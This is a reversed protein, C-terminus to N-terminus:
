FVFDLVASVVHVPRDIVHGPQVNILMGSSGHRPRVRDYQLKLAMSPQMDWRVGASVTDQQPMTVLLRNLADNLLAGQVAYAPPLGDLALGANSTADSTGIRAYSLYPTFDGSRLGASTYLATASGLYSRTRSRGAEGMVFWAGPDYNVSVTLAQVRKGDAEYRDAIAVGQPGFQRFADFVSRAHDFTLKAQALTARATLAGYEATNTVGAIGHLKLNVQDFLHQSYAGYFAQTVNKVPGAHWRYSLDVGDSHSIPVSGYVEVPTRAWPYAYAAKRYDAALFLPLAIRGARLALNSTAQYKIYGWELKPRYNNELNQESILQVVGSWQQDLNFTLQAGLRSDVDMSWAHTRGAGYAKLISSSYDAHRESSHSLGLTGFGSFSINPTDGDDARAAGLVCACLALAPAAHRLSPPSLKFRAQCPQM